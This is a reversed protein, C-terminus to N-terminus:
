QRSALAHLPMPDTQALYRYSQPPQFDAHDRLWALQYPDPLRQPAAITLACGTEAGELYLDFEARTLGLDNRHRRWLINPRAVEVAQLRATGVVSMVPTSAYIIIM